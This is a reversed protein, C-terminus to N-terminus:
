QCCYVDQSQGSSLSKAPFRLREMKLRRCLRGMCRIAPLMSPTSFAPLSIRRYWRSPAVPLREDAYSKDEAYRDPEPGVIDLRLARALEERVEAASQKLQGNSRSAATM